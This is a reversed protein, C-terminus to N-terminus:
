KFENVETLQEILFEKEFLVTLYFAPALAILQM